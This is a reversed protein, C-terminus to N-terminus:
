RKAQNSVMLPKIGVDHAWFKHEQVFSVEVGCGQTLESSDLPIYIPVYSQAPVDRFLPMRLHWDHKAICNKDLYRWSINVPTGVASLASIPKANKNHIELYLVKLDGMWFIKPNKLFLNRFEQITYSVISKTIAPPSKFWSPECNAFGVPLVKNILDAYDVDSKLKNKAFEHFTVIRLPLVSCDVGYYLYSQNDPYFGSYGNMTKKHLLLAAWMADLQEEDHLDDRGLPDPTAFQAFFIVEKDMNKKEVSGLEAMKEYLRKHWETKQSVSIQVMSNEALLALCTGLIILIKIFKTQNQIIRNVCYAAAYAIPFLFVLSIRAVARIASFLPLKYVLKWPSINGIYLTLLMLMLLSSILLFFNQDRVNPTSKKFSFIAILFLASAVLGPFMHHEHRMPVQPLMNSVSHWLSSHDALLYSQLRPLMSSIENWERTAGYLLTVKAYPYFLVALLFVLGLGWAAVAVKTIATENQWFSIIETYFAFLNKRNKIAYITVITTLFLATFFGIYIGCYFQWLLWFGSLTLFVMRPKGFFRLLYLVAMPVGFRYHLQAHGIKYTATLGFTFIIAGVAAGARHLGLRYFCFYAAFFNLAYGILYWLQFSTYTDFGVVRWLAYFPTSGWLNESFGLVYPYPWLFSLHKFSNQYGLLVQYFHELFYNCLRADGINGPMLTFGRNLEFGLQRVPIALFFILFLFFPSSSGVTTSVRSFFALRIM